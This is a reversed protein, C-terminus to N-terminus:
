VDEGLLKLLEKIENPNKKIDKMRKTDVRKKTTVDTRDKKATGKYTMRSKRIDRHIQEAEIRTLRTISTKIDKLQM